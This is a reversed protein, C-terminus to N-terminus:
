TEEMINVCVRVFVDMYILEGSQGGTSAFTSSGFLQTVEYITSSAYNENSADIRSIKANLVADTASRRSPTTAM